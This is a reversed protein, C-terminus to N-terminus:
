HVAVGAGARYGAHTDPDAHRRLDVQVQRDAGTRGSPKWSSTVTNWATPRTSSKTSAAGAGRGGRELTFGALTGLSSGVSSRLRAQRAAPRSASVAPRSAGIDRELETLNM